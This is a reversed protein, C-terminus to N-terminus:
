FYMWDEVSSPTNQPFTVGRNLYTMTNWGTDTDNEDPTGDGDTDYSSSPIADYAGSVNDTDASAAVVKVQWCQPKGQPYLLSFPIAVEMSHFEVNGYIKCSDTCDSLNEPDTCNYVNCWWKYNGWNYCCIQYEAGMNELTINAPYNSANSFVTGGTYHSNNVETYYDADLYIIVSKCNSNSAKIGIYLYNDDCDLALHSIDACDSYRVPVTNTEVKNNWESDKYVGNIVPVSDKFEVISVVPRHDSVIGYTNGPVYTDIVAADTDVFVYDFRYNLASPDSSNEITNQNGTAEVLASDLFHQRVWGMEDDTYSNNFDGAWLVNFSDPPTNSEIINLCEQIQQDQADDYSHRALHINYFFYKEGNIWVGVCGLARPEEGQASLPYRHKDDDSIPYKSLIASGYEGLSYDMDKIFYYYYTTGTYQSVKNAIDEAQNHFNSRTTGNDVEQLAVLDPEEDAIMHSIADINQNPHNDDLTGHHINFTMVKLQQSSFCLVPIIVFMILSLKLTKLM